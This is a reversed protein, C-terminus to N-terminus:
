YPCGHSSRRCCYGRCRPVNDKALQAEYEGAFCAKCPIDVVIKKQVSVNVHLRPRASLKFVGTPTPTTSIRQECHEYIRESEIRSTWGRVILLFFHLRLNHFCNFTCIVWPSITSCATYARKIPSYYNFSNLQACNNSVMYITATWFSWTWIVAFGTVM